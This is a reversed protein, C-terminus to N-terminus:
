PASHLDAIDRRIVLRRIVSAAAILLNLVALLAFVGAQGATRPMVPGTQAVVPQQVAIPELELPETPAAPALAIEAKDVRVYATLEQDPALQDVSVAEGNVLVKLKQRPKVTIAEALSGDPKKMRIRLRDGDVRILQAKFVAYHQGDRTIVDLCEQSANPFRSLVDASFTVAECAAANQALVPPVAVVTAAL